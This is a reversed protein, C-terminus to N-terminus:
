LSELLRRAEERVQLDNATEALKLAQEAEQRARDPLDLRQYVLAM